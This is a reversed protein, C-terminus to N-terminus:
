GLPVMGHCGDGGGGSNQQRQDKERQDHQGPGTLGALLASPAPAAGAHGLLGDGVAEAAAAGGDAAQECALVAASCCLRVVAWPAPQPNTRGHDLGLSGISM